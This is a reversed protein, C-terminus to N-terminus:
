KAFTGILKAAGGLLNTFAGVMGTTTQSEYYGKQALNKQRETQQIYYESTNWKTENLQANKMSAQASTMSAQASLTSAQASLLSAKAKTTDISETALNHRNTESEVSLNHRETERLSAMSITESAKNHRAQEEQSLRQTQSSFDSIRLSERGQRLSELGQEETALNHRQSELYNLYQVQVALM